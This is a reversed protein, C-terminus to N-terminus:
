SPPTKRTVSPRCPVKPSARHKSVGSASDAITPMAMPMAIRPRTGTGSIWNSPKPEDPEADGSWSPREIIQTM